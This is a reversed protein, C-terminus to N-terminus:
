NLLHWIIYMMVAVCISIVMAIAMSHATISIPKCNDGGDLSKNDDLSQPHVRRDNNCSWVVDNNTKMKEMLTEGDDLRSIFPSIDTNWPSNNVNDKEAGQTEDKTAEDKTTEDKTAEDKTAEDTKASKAEPLAVTKNAERNKKPSRPAGKLKFPGYDFTQRTLFLNEGGCDECVPLLLLVVMVNCYCKHWGSVMCEFCM